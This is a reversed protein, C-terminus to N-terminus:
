APIDAGTSDNDTMTRPHCPDGAPVLPLTIVFRAGIGDDRSSVSATGGTRHVLDRVVALGIGSGAKRPGPTSLRVFPEWIRSRDDPNVGPGQDEVALAAWGDSGSVVLRVTQGRPGYKMANDVLNIVMQRLAAPDVRVVLPGTAHLLLRVGAAHALPAMGEVIQGVAQDLLIPRPALTSVNRETSAFHLANEVLRMLRRAELVIVEAATQRERESRTRHLSLTEGYLMIQALPTRLEHSVAATFEARLRALAQEKHLQRIALGSVVLILLLLGVLLPVRSTAPPVLALLGLAEPRMAVHFTLSALRPFFSATDAVLGSSWNRSRWLEVGRQDYLAVAVLSDNSLGRTISAPLLGGNAENMGHFLAEALRRASVVFGFAGTVRGATDQRGTMVVAIPESEHVITLVFPNAYRRTAADVSDILWRPARAPRGATDLARLARARLDAAFLVFPEIHVPSRENRRRLNEVLTEPSPLVEVPSVGTAALGRFIGNFDTWAAAESSRMVSWAAYASVDRSSRLTAERQEDGARKAEVVLAAITAILLVFLGGIRSARTM